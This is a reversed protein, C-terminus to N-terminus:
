DGPWGKRMNKARFKDHKRAMQRITQSESLGQSINPWTLPMLTPTM